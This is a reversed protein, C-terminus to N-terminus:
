VALAKIVLERQVPTLDASKKVGFKSLVKKVAERGKEDSKLKKGMAKGYAQCAKIVDELTPAPKGKASKKPAPEEEAEEESEEASDTYVEETETEEEEDNGAEDETDTKLDAVSIETTEETETEEDSVMDSLAQKLQVILDKKSTAHIIAQISRGGTCETPKTTTTTAM